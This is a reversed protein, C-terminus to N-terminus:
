QIASRYKDNRMASTLLVEFDEGIYKLFLKNRMSNFIRRNREDLGDDGKGLVVASLASIVNMAVNSTTSKAIDAKETAAIGVIEM